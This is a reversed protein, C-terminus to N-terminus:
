ETTILKTTAKEEEDPRLDVVKEFGFFGFLKSEKL